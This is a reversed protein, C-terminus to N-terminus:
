NFSSDYIGPHFTVSNPVHQVLYERNLLNNLIHMHQDLQNERPRPELRLKQFRILVKCFDQPNRFHMRVKYCSLHM